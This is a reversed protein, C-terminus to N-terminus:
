KTEGLLFALIAKQIHMRNEAQDFVVSNSGDIVDATVELGRHAPLCHMFIYDSKANKVLDSNIQFNKFDKKRKKDEDEQGMSVWVDSYIVDANKVMAGPDTSVEVTSGSEQAFVQALTVVDEAPEYKEPTAVRVDIGSKACALLLSHCVNNGDGIYTAIIKKNGYKEKITLVDALGQCPHFLDSLGNIIVASGNQALDVVDKHSFTRAVICDLYRSLTKAVDSASERKGLDIEQPALYLCKGGLQWVAIEFSVRTRNSPKQFLLGIAKDKLITSLKGKQAKLKLALKILHQVESSSLDQISLLNRKM